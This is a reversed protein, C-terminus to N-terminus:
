RPVKPLMWRGAPSFLFHDEGLIEAVTGPVKGGGPVHVYVGANLNLLSDINM